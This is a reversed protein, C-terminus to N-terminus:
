APGSRLAYPKGNVWLYEVRVFQKGSLTSGAYGIAEIRADAPPADRLGWAAMRFLPALELTWEGASPTPARAKRFIAAGDVTQSQAPVPRNPLDQPLKLEAPVAVTLEAHPNNWRVATIKGSLYLPNDQDFSSWGHHARVTWPACGALILLIRRRM